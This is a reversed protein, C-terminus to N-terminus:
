SALALFREFRADLRERDPRDVPRRPLRLPAKHFGKLLDLM